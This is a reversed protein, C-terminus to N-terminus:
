GVTITSQTPDVTVSAVSGINSECNNIALTSAPDFFAGITVPGAFSGRATGTITYGLNGASDAGLVSAGLQTSTSAMVGSPLTWDLVARKLALQLSPLFFCGGVYRKKNLVFAPMKVILPKRGIGSAPEPATTGTCGGIEFPAVTIVEVVRPGVLTGIGPTLPTAFTLTTGFTCAISGAGHITRAKASASGSLAALGAVACLLAVAIKVTRQRGVDAV